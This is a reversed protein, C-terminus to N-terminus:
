KKLRIVNWSLPKIDLQKAEPNVEVEIPEISSTFSNKVLPDTSSYEIHADLQYAEYGVFDLSLELSQDLSRNVAFITLHEDDNDIVVSELYPVKGFEEVEYEPSEIISQLVTGRGYNSAHAYPYFITQKFLGTENTFIPAIVNVLQAMCAIKVRDAHKLLTILALGVLLGDEFTYQDELIDPAEQWPTVAADHENSHYWANWEDFSIMMTKDSRKMAKISDCIAVVSDIFKDMRVSKALHHLTGKKPADFYQHMSIYDVNDYCEKLVTEEWEGFTPMSENSSGCAVLEISPDLLRMANATENALRAYEYATKHGTQWPGDMENGLCWTKIKYASDNGYERRKQAWYSNSDLNCYELLDCAEQIGRTGLNVAMMTEADVEKIWDMFEDTGFQNSEVTRWHLDVRRPRDEKPGVGDEWKYGSVFNGGPYRIMPVSLENIAEIVDERYGSENSLPNGPEYIGGYVCRGMHEVFSSYIRNDIKALEFGESVKLKAKVVAGGKIRLFM